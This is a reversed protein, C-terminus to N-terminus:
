LSPGATNEIFQDLDHYQNRNRGGISGSAAPADLSDASGVDPTFYKEQYIGYDRIVRGAYKKTPGEPMADLPMTYGDESLTPDSLWTKVQGQGAHYAATVSVPDGLFLKSLYNLYWCGFRINTEGDFMMEFSFGSIKLKGAIWEATDPMLQMLGRAGVSSVNMRNFSSENMIIASVYAPSLNYEAAYKEILERYALPYNRDIQRQEEVHRDSCQKLYGNMLMLATFGVALVATVAILSSKLWVPLRWASKRKEHRLSAAHPREMIGPAAATEPPRDPVRVNRYVPPVSAPDPPVPAPTHHRRAPIGSANLERDLLATVASYTHEVPGSNDIVADSLSAKEDSSMVADMRSLAEERSYGDREMLRQLQLERPLWVTWVTDCLRNYGKEFLLPMDLFCLSKGLDRAEEIRARTESLLYPAMLRDLKEREAPDSFIIRGLRRRNLTGDEYLVDPGFVQGIKQLVPSGAGTLDRSIRDGDIVPFGRSVLFSSVTSKGCAISGTLGIVRM